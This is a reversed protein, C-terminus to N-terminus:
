PAAQGRARVVGELALRRALTFELGAQPPEVDGLEEVVFGDAEVRLRAPAGSGLRLVYRGEVDTAAVLWAGGDGGAPRAQVRAGAIPRGLRDVVRGAVAWRGGATVGGDRGGALPRRGAHMMLLAGGAVVAAAAVAATLVYARKM